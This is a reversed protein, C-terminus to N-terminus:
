GTVIFGLVSNGYMSVRVTIGGSKQDTFVAAM